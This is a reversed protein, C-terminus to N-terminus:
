KQWFNSEHVKQLDHVAQQKWLMFIYSTFQVFDAFWYSDLREANISRLYSFAHITSTLQVSSIVKFKQARTASSPGCIWASNKCTCNVEAVPANLSSVLILGMPNIHIMLSTNFCKGSICTWCCCLKRKEFSAKQPKQWHFCTSSPFAM